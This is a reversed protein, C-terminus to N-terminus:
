WRLVHMDYVCTIATDLAEEKTYSGEQLTKVIRLLMEKEKVTWPSVEKEKLSKQVLGRVKGLSEVKGMEESDYIKLVGAIVDQRM